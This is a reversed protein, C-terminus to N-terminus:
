KGPSYEVTELLEFHMRSKVNLLDQSFQRNMLRQDYEETIVFFIGGQWDDIATTKEYYVRTRQQPKRTAKVIEVDFLTYSLRRKLIKTIEVM